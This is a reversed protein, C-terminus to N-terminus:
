PQTCFMPALEPCLGQLHLIRRRLEHWAEDLTRERDDSFHLSAWGGSVSPWADPSDEFTWNPSRFDHTLRHPEHSNFRLLTGAPQPPMLSVEEEPGCVIYGHNDLVLHYSWPPLDFSDCHAPVLSNAGLVQLGATLFNADKLRPEHVGGPRSEYVAHELLDLLPTHPIAATARCSIVAPNENENESPIRM